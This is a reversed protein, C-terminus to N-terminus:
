RYCRLSVDRKVSDSVKNNQLLEQAENCCVDNFVKVFFLEHDLQHSFDRKADGYDRIDPTVYQIFITMKYIMTIAGIPLLTRPLLSSIEESQSIRKLFNDFTVLLTM